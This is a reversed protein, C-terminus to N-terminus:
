ELAEVAQAVLAPAVLWGHRFLGNIRTLGPQRHLLPGNDPLAPRLNTESHVVRAEALEPLVSHAASLLELSSRLSVPSRDESEVESAGVVLLDGPRPVLYVRHRPHLLRLPHRLVLGPAHLWHLEGRVGRVPLEPRAGTGRADIAHDFGLQDLRGAAVERVPHGWRWEVGQACGAAFLANMAQPTHILGEGAVHWGLLGKHLARERVQLEESALALPLRAPDQAAIRALLREASGRDGPHALLLSGRRTFHVPRQLEDLWRPWLRLSRWGLEAVRADGCDLEAVPSLLGAATFGAAACQAQAPGPSTDCVTVAHGARALRWALLRGVLGAGAVGVKV